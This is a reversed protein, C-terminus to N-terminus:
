RIRRPDNNIITLLNDEYDLIFRLNRMSSQMGFLLMSQLILDKLNFKKIELQFNGSDM